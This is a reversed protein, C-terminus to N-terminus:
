SEVKDVHTVFAVDFSPAKSASESVLGTTISPSTHQRATENSTDSTCRPFPAALLMALIAIRFKM